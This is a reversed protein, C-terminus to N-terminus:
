ISIYVFCEYLNKVTSNEQLQVLLLVAIYHVYVSRWAFKVISTLYIYIYTLVGDAITYCTGYLTSSLVFGIIESVTINTELRAM